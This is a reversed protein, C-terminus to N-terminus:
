PVDPREGGLMRDCMTKYDEESMALVAPPEDQSQARTFVLPDNAMINILEADSLRPIRTGYFSNITDVFYNTILAHATMTPHVGDLSFLGGLFETTLRVGGLAYGN